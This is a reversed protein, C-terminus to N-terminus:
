GVFSDNSSTNTCCHSNNWLLAILEEATVISGPRATFLRLLTLERALCHVRKGFVSVLLCHDKITVPSGSISPATAWAAQSRRLLAQVRCSKVHASRNQLITTAGM